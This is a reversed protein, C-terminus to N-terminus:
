RDGSVPFARGTACGLGIVALLHGVGQRCHPRDAILAPQNVCMKKLLTEPVALNKKFLVNNVTIFNFHSKIDTIDM